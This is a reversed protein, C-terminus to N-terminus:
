LRRKDRAQWPKRKALLFAIGAIPIAFLLLELAGSGGDPAIGFIKEIFDM